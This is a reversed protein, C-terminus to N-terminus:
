QDEPVSLPNSENRTSEIVSCEASEVVINLKRLISPWITEGAPSSLDFSTIIMHDMTPPIKKRTKIANTTM